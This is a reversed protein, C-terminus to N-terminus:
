KLEGFVIKGITTTHWSGGVVLNKNSSKNGPEQEKKQQVPALAEPDCYGMHGHEFRGTNLVREESEAGEDLDAIDPGCSSCYDVGCAGCHFRPVNEHVKRPVKCSGCYWGNCYAGDTHSVQKPCPTATQAAYM